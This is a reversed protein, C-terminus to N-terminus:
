GDPGRILRHAPRHRGPSPDRGFPARLAIAAVEPLAPLRVTVPQRAPGALHHPM